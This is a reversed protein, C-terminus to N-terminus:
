VRLIQYIVCIIGWINCKQYRTSSVILIQYVLYIIDPKGRVNCEKCSRAANWQDANPRDVAPLSTTTVIKMLRKEWRKKEGRDCVKRM